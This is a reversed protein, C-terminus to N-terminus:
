RSATRVLMDITNHVLLVVVDEFDDDHARRRHALGGDELAKCIPLEAGLVDRGDAYVESELLLERM